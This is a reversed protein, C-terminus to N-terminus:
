LAKIHSSRNGAFISMLFGGFLIQFGIVILTAAGILERMQQLAGFDSAIWGATISIAWILGACILVAGVLIWWELRSIKMVRRVWRSPKRVGQQISYITAFVGMIAAQFAVILLASAVVSWHDGFRLPGLHVVEAGTTSFLISFIAVGLAAMIVAPLIFLHRPSLLFMYILHRFGDRWPQLHPPRGREDPSLTVPVEAIDLDKLVAKLVMESAFEMGKSTLNLDELIDKRIARLGCHSDGIPTRFLIRLLGSLVPNGIYRNKWPMAGPKIEGKFRSGMCIDAGKMLEEVMPIAELFDYSCDSDGMVLYGAQSAAFGGILAAGYGKEAVAVVRAGAAAALDQSGDDSGNDAVIVEGTLGHRAQLIELAQLSRQVCREITGAENLCPLVFAVTEKQTRETERSTM